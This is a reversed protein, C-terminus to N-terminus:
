HNQLQFYLLETAYYVYLYYVEGDDKILLDFSEFFNLSFSEKGHFQKVYFSVFFILALIEVKLHHFEQHFKQIYL